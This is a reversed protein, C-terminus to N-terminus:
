AEHYVQSGKAKFEKAKEEMGQILAAEVALWADYGAPAGSVTLRAEHKAIYDLREM